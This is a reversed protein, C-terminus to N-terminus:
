ELEPNWFEISLHNINEATKTHLLTLKSIQANFEEHDPHNWGLSSRDFSDGERPRRNEAEFFPVPRLLAFKIPRRFKM